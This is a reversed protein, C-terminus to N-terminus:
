NLSKKYKREAAEREERTLPDVSEVLTWVDGSRSMREKKCGTTIM